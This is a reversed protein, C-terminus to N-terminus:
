VIRSEIISANPVTMTAEFIYLVQVADDVPTGTSTDTGLDAIEGNPAYIQLTFNNVKAKPPNYKKSCNCQNNLRCRVFDNSPDYESRDPILTAFSKRLTDNTGLFNDSLEEIVLILHSYTLAAAPLICETLRVSTVNKLETYLGAGDNYNDSTSGFQSPNFTVRFNTTEPYTTRNRDRSDVVLCKSERTTHIDDYKPPGLQMNRLNEGYKPPLANEAVVKNKKAVRKHTHTNPRTERILVKDGSVPLQKPKNKSELFDAFSM